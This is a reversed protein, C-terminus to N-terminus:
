VLGVEQTEVSSVGPLSGLSAEIGEGQGSKDDFVVTVMLAELGFAVPRKELRVLKSGLIKKVSASLKELDVETGEPMVRYTIAVQGM